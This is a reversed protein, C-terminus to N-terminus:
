RIYIMPRIHITDSTCNYPVYEEDTDITGIIMARERPFNKSTYYEPVLNCTDLPQINRLWYAYGASISQNDFLPLKYNAEGIDYKNEISSTKYLTSAGQVSYTYSDNNTGKLQTYSLLTADSVTWTYDTSNQTQNGKNTCSYAYSCNFTVSSSLLVNRNVIHDGLVTKIQSSINSLTETHITSNIYSAGIMYCTKDDSTKSTNYTFYSYNTDDNKWAATTVYTVPILATGYGNNYTIGDSATRNYEVDFGAIMWQTNYTGDNINIRNGLALTTNTTSDYYSPISSDTSHHFRSSFTDADEVSNITFYASEDYGTPIDGSGSGGSMNEIADYSWICTYIGAIKSILNWTPAIWGPITFLDVIVM